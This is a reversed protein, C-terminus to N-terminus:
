LAATRKWASMGWTLAPSAAVTGMVRTVLRIVSSSHKSCPFGPGRLTPKDQWSHLSCCTKAPGTWCRDAQGRGKEVGDLGSCDGEELTPPVQLRDRPKYLRDRAQVAKIVDTHNCFVIRATM